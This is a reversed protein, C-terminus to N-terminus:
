IKLLFFEFFCNKQYPPLNYFFDYFFNIEEVSFNWWFHGSTFSRCSRLSPEREREWESQSRATESKLRFAWLNMRLNFPMLSFILTESKSLMRDSLLFRCLIKRQRQAITPNTGMSTPPRIRSLPRMMAFSTKSLQAFNTCLTGCFKCIFLLARQRTIQNALLSSSLLSSSLRLSVFLGWFRWLAGFLASYFRLSILIM